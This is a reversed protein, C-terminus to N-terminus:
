VDIKRTTDFMPNEFLVTFRCVHKMKVANATKRISIAHELDNSHLVALFGQDHLCFDTKRFISTVTADSWQNWQPVITAGKSMGLGTPLFIFGVHCGFM